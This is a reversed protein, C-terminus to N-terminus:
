VLFLYILLYLDTMLLTKTSKKHSSSIEKAQQLRIFSAEPHLLIRTCIYNRDWLRGYRCSPSGFVFVAGDGTGEFRWIVSSLIEWKRPLSTFSFFEMERALTSGSERPPEITRRHTPAIIMIGICM